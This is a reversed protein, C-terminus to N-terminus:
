CVAVLRLIQIRKFVLKTKIYCLKIVFFIISCLFQYGNNEYNKHGEPEVNSIIECNM